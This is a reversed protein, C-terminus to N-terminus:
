KNFVKRWNRQTQSLGREFIVESGSLSDWYVEYGLCLQIFGIIAGIEIFFSILKVTERGLVSLFPLKKCTGNRYVKLGCIMKGLTGGLRWTLIIFYLYPILFGLPVLSIVMFLHVSKQPNIFLSIFYNFYAVFFISLIALDIIFAIIRLGIIKGKDEM